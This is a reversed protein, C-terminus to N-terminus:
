EEFAAAMPSVPALLDIGSISEIPTEEFDAEGPTVPAIKQLVFPSISPIIFDSQIEEFTAEMSTIPALRSIEYLPRPESDNFFAEKPTVPALEAEHVHIKDTKINVRVIIIKPNGASLLTFNMVFLAALIYITTKMTKM